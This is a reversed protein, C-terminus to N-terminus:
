SKHIARNLDDLRLDNHKSTKELSSWLVCPHGDARLMFPINNKSLHECQKTKQKWGTLATLDEITLFKNM